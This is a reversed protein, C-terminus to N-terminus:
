KKKAHYYRREKITMDRASIILGQMPSKYILVIFLYRGGQNKGYAIYVDEGKVSGKCARYFLANSSLAEEVEEVTVNHKAKIKSIYKDIWIINKLQMTGILSILALAVSDM